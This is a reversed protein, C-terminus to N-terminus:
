GIETLVQFWTKGEWIYDDEPGGREKCYTRAVESSLAVEAFGFETGCVKWGHPFSPGYQQIYRETLVRILNSLRAAESQTQNSYVFYSSWDIRFRRWWTQGGGIERPTIRMALNSRSKATDTMGALEHPWDEDGPRIGIYTSPIAINDSLLTPDEQLRGIKIKPPALVRTVGALDEYELSDSYEGPINTVMKDELHSKLSEMIGYVAEHTM